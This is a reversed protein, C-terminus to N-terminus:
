GLPPYDLAAYVTGSASASDPNELVFLWGDDGAASKM